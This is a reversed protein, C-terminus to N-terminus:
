VPRHFDVSDVLSDLDLVNELPRGGGDWAWDGNEVPAFNALLLVRRTLDGDDDLHAKLREFNVHFGMFRFRPLRTVANHIIHALEHALAGDPTGFTSPLAGNNFNNM